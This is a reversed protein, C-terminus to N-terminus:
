REIGLLENLESRRKVLANLENARAPVTAAKPRPFKAAIDALARARDAAVAVAPASADVIIAPWGATHVAAALPLEFGDRSAQFAILKPELRKLENILTDTTSPELPCTFGQDSQDVALTVASESVHIGVFADSM